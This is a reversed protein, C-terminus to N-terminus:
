AQQAFQGGGEAAAADHHQAVHAFQAPAARLQMAFQRRIQRGGLDIEHRRRTPGWCAPQEVVLQQRCATCASVHAGMTRRDITSVNDDFPTWDPSVHHM